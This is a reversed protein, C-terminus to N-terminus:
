KGDDKYFRVACLCIARLKDSHMGWKTGNRAEWVSQRELWVVDMKLADQVDSAQSSETLPSWFCQARKCWLTGKYESLEIDCVAAVRLELEKDTMTIVENAQNHWENDCILGTPKLTEPSVQVGRKSKDGSGCQECFDDRSETM